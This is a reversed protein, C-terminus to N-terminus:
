QPNGVTYSRNGGSRISDASQNEKGKLIHMTREKKKASIKVPNYFTFFIPESHVSICGFCSTSLFALKTMSCTEM